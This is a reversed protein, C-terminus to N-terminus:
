SASSRSIRRCCCSTPTAAELLALAMQLRKEDPLIMVGSVVRDFGVFAGRKAIAIPIEAKPDDHCCLHGIAVRQPNVGASELIIL